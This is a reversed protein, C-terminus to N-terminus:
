FLVANCTHSQLFLCIPIYLHWHTDLCFGLHELHINAIFGNETIIFNSVADHIFEKGLTDVNYDYSAQNTVVTIDHINCNEKILMANVIALKLYDIEDNNHAFMM